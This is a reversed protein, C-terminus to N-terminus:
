ATEVAAASPVYRAIQELVVLGGLFMWGLVSTRFGPLGINYVFPLLWDGLAGALLMGALGALAAHVYGVSFGDTLKKRLSLGVRATALAWWVFFALGVLGTQAVIDVYQNHSNFQIYYGLIPYLPTYFYYNAPGVGLLPNSKIIELVIAFAAGRTLISFQNGVILFDRLAPLLLFGGVALGVGLLLSARPWRFWVLIALALVAPLWGSTWTRGEGTLAVVFTATVLGLLAARWQWRLDRNFLVQGGALAVLWIWFLSGTSGFSYLKLIATGAPGLLRGAIYITALTLFLWVLRKLWLLDKIRNAVLWYAGVSFVFIGVEGLQARVPALQAFVNWPLYGVLFSVSIAVIMGALPLNTTSPALQIRRDWVMAVLWLGLLLPVALLVINIPSGTGTGIAFPVVLAAAVM